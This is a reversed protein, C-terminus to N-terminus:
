NENNNLKWYLSNKKQPADNYGLWKVRSLSCLRNAETLEVERIQDWVAQFEEHQHQVSEDLIDMKLQLLWFQLDNLTPATSRAEDLIFKYSIRLRKWALAFKLIPNTVELSHNNWAEKLRDMTGELKLTKPSAKFYTTMKHQTSQNLKVIQVILVIPDHDSLTQLQVHELQIISHLWHGKGSLYFRDLRSQDM